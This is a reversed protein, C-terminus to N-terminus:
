GRLGAFSVLAAAIGTDVLWVAVGFVVLMCIVSLSYNRLEDRSPWVVRRMETAVDSFYNRIRTIIGPKDSKKEKEKSKEAAAVKAQKAQLEKAEEVSTGSEAAIREARQQQRAQRASRRNRHKKAM